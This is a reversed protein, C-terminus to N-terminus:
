AVRELSPKRFYVGFPSQPIEWHIGADRTILIPLDKWILTRRARWPSASVRLLDASYVGLNVREGSMNSTAMLRVLM